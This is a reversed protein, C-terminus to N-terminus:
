GYVAQRMGLDSRVGHQEAEGVTVETVLGLGVGVQGTGDGDQGLGHALVVPRQLPVWLGRTPRDGPRTAIGCQPGGETASVDGVSQNEDGLPLVRGLGVAEANGAAPM